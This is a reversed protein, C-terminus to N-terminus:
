GALRLNLTVFVCLLRFGDVVTFDIMAQKRCELDDAKITAESAQRIEQLNAFCLVLQSLPASTAGSEELMTWWTSAKGLGM